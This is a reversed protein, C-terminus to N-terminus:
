DEHGVAGSPRWTLSKGELAQARTLQARWVMAGARAVLERNDFPLVLHGDAGMRYALKVDSQDAGHFFLLLIAVDWHRRLMQLIGLAEPGRGEIEALVVDCLERELFLLAELHDRAVHLDHGSGEFGDQVKSVLVPDASILLVTGAV